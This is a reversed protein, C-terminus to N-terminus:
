DFFHLCYFNQQISLVRKTPKVFSKNNSGFNLEYLLFHQNASYCGFTKNDWGFLKRLM